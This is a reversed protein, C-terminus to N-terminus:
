RISFTLKLCKSEIVGDMINLPASFHYVKTKTKPWLTKDRRCPQFMCVRSRRDPRRSKPKMLIVEVDFDEFMLLFM